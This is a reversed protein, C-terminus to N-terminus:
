SLRAPPESIRIVKAIATTDKARKADNVVYCRAPVHCSLSRSRRGTSLQFIHHLQRNYALQRIQCRLQWFSPIGPVAKSVEQNAASVTARCSLCSRQKECQFELAHVIQQPQLSKLWGDTTHCVAVSVSVWLGFMVAVM